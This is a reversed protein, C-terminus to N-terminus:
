IKETTSRPEAKVSDNTLAQSDRNQRDRGKDKDWSRRMNKMKERQEATLVESIEKRTRAYEEKALPSVPEWLKKMREQSSTLIQEIKQHQDSTLELEKDLRQLYGRRHDGNFPGQRPSNKQPQATPFSKVLVGGTTAGAIFIIFAALIVKWRSV